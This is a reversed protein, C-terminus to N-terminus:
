FFDTEVAKGVLFAKYSDLLFTATNVPLDFFCDNQLSIIDSKALHSAQTIHCLM